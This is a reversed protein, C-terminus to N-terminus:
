LLPSYADPLRVCVRNGAGPERNGTGSQGSWGLSRLTALAQLSFDNVRGLRHSVICSCVQNKV